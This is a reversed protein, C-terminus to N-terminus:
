LFRVGLMILIGLLLVALYALSKRKAVEQRLEPILDSVAIYIFNGAAFPLLYVISSGIEGALFFGAIGGLIVTIATLFNLFLAKVRKFGGYVLVGFDGIEQPIEHLAIAISTVIGLPINVIFSAAIVLGDIFNHVSDSILILYSVPKKLKKHKAAHHHHWLLRPLRM